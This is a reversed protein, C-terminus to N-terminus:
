DNWPEDTQLVQGPASYHLQQHLHVNIRVTVWRRPYALDSLDGSAARRIENTGWIYLGDQWASDAMVANAAAVYSQDHERRYYAWENRCALDIRPAGGRAFEGRDACVSAMDGYILVVQGSSFIPAASLIAFLGRERIPLRAHERNISAFEAPFSTVALTFRLVSFSFVGVVSQAIGALEASAATLDTQSALQGYELVILVESSATNLGHLSALSALDWQHQRRLKIVLGRNLSLLQEAQLRTQSATGGWQLTPVFQEHEAILSVWDAHGNNPDRLQMLRADCQSKIELPAPGLDLISPRSGFAESIANFSKDLSGSNHWKKLRIDPFLADKDFDPLRRLGEIESPRVGLSPIYRFGEFM